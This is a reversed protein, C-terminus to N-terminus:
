ELSSVEAHQLAALLGHEGLHVDATDEIPSTAGTPMAIFCLTRVHQQLKNPPSQQDLGPTGCRLSTPRPNSGASCCPACRRCGM